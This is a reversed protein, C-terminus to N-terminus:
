GPNAAQITAGSERRLVDFIRPDLCARAKVFENLLVILGNGFGFISRPVWTEPSFRKTVFLLRKLEIGVALRAPM